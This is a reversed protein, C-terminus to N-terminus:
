HPFDEMVSEYLNIRVVRYLHAVAWVTDVSPRDSNLADDAPRVLNSIEDWKSCWIESGNRVTRDASSPSQDGCRADLGLCNCRCRCGPVADDGIHPDGDGCRYGLTWDVIDADDDVCRHHYRESETRSCRCDNPVVIDGLPQRRPSRQGMPRQQRPPVRWRFMRGSGLTTTASAPILLEGQASVLPGSV